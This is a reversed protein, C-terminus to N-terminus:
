LGLVDRAREIIELRTGRAIVQGERKSMQYEYMPDYYKVLLLEIWQRHLQEATEPQASSFAQRM